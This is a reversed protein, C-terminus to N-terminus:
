TTQNKIGGGRKKKETLYEAQKKTRKGGIKTKRTDTKQIKVIKIM